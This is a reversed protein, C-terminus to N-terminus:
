CRQKHITLRRISIQSVSSSISSSLLQLTVFCLICVVTLWRTVSSTITADQDSSVSGSTAAVDTSASTIKSCHQSVSLQDKTMTQDESVDVSESCSSASFNCGVAAKEDCPRHYQRNAYCIELKSKLDQSVAWDKDCDSVLDCQHSDRLHLQLEERTNLIHNDFPCLPLM